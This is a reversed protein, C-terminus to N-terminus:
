SKKNIDRIVKWIEYGAYFLGLFIGIITWIQSGQKQDLWIGLVTFVFMGAAINLGLSFHQLNNKDIKLVM